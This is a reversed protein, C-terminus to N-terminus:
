GREIFRHFTKGPEQDVLLVQHGFKMAEAFEGPALTEYDPPVNGFVLSLDYDSGRRRAPIAKRAAIWADIQEPKTIVRLAM